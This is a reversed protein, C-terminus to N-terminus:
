RAMQGIACPVGGGGYFQRVRGDMNLCRSRVAGHISSQRGFWEPGPSRLHGGSRIGIAAAVYPPHAQGGDEGPAGDAAEVLYEINLVDRLFVLLARIARRDLQRHWFRLRADRNQLEADTFVASRIKM